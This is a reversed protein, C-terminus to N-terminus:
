AARWGTADWAKYIYRRAETTDNRAIHVMAARMSAAAAREGDSDLRYEAAAAARLAAKILPIVPEPTCPVGNDDRESVRDIDELLAEAELLAAVARAKAVWSGTQM